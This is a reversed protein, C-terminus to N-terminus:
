KVSAPLTATIAFNTADDFKGEMSRPVYRYGVRLHPRYAERWFLGDENMGKYILTGASDQRPINENYSIIQTELATDAVYTIYFFAKGYQYLDSTNGFSDTNVLKARYGKPVWLPVTVTESGTTYTFSTQKLPNFLFCSSLSACLLLIAVMKM